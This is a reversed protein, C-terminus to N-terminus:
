SGKRRSRYTTNHDTPRARHTCRAIYEQLGAETFYVCGNEVYQVFAILGDARAMDLTALSIGSCARPRKKQQLTKGYNGAETMPAGSKATILM